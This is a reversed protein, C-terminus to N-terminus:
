GRSASRIGPMTGMESTNRTVARMDSRDLLDHGFGVDGLRELLGDRHRPLRRRRHGRMSPSRKLPGCRTEPPALASDRPIRAVLRSILSSRSRSVASRSVNPRSVSSVVRSSTAIACIVVASVASVLSWCRCSIAMTEHSAWTARAISLGDGRRAFGVDDREFSPLRFLLLGGETCSVRLRFRGDATKQLVLADRIFPEGLHLSTQGGGAVRHTVQAGAGAIGPSDVGRENLAHGREFGLDDSELLGRLVHLM